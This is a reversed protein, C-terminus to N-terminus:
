DGKLKDLGDKVEQKRTPGPGDLERNLRALGRQAAEQDEAETPPPDEYLSPTRRIDRFIDQPRPQEETSKLKNLMRQEAARLDDDSLRPAAVHVPPRSVKPEEGRLLHQWTNGNVVNAITSISVGYERCLQGQTCGRETAYRERIEVVQEGNLKRGKTNGRQFPQGPM